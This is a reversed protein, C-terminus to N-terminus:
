NIRTPHYRCIKLSNAVLLNQQAYVFNHNQSKPGKEFGGTIYRFRTHLSINFTIVILELVSLPIMNIFRKHRVRRIRLIVEKSSSLYNPDNLVIMKSMM